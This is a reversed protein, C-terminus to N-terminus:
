AAAPRKGLADVGASLEKMAEIMLALWRCGGVQFVVLLQVVGDAVAANAGVRLVAEIAPDAM